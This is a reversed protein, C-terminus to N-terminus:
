VLIGNFNADDLIKYLFIDWKNEKKFKPLYRVIRKIKSKSTNGSLLTKFDEDDSKAKHKVYTIIKETLNPCQMIYLVDDKKGLKIILEINAMLIEPFTTGLFILLTKYFFEQIVGKRINAFYLLIRMFIKPDELIAKSCIGFIYEKDNESLNTSKNKFFVNLLLINYIIRM